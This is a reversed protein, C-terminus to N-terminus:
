PSACAVAEWFVPSLIRAHWPRRVGHGGLEDIDDGADHIATGATAGSAIRRFVEAHWERPLLGLGDLLVAGVIESCRRPPPELPPERRGTRNVAEGVAVALPPREPGAADPQIWALVATRSLLPLGAFREYLAAALTGQETRDAPAEPWRSSAAPECRAAFYATEARLEAILPAWHQTQQTWGLERSARRGLALTRYVAARDHGPLADWVGLARLEEWLLPPATAAAHAARPRNRTWQALADLERRLADLRTTM